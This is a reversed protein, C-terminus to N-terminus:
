NFNSSHDFATTKDTAGTNVLINDGGGGSSINKTSADIMNVGGKQTDKLANNEDHIAGLSNMKDKPSHMPSLDKVKSKLPGKYGEQGPQVMQQVSMQAGETDRPVLNGTVSKTQWMRDTMSNYGSTMQSTDGYGESSTVAQADYLIKQQEPTFTGTVGNQGSMEAFPTGADKKDFGMIKAGKTDGLLASLDIGGKISLQPQGDLSDWAEEDEKDQAKLEAKTPANPDTLSGHKVLSSIGRAAKGLPQGILTKAMDYAVDGVKDAVGKFKDVFGKVREKPSITIPRATVKNADMSASTAKPLPTVLEDQKGEGIMAIVGGHGGKVVGGKELGVVGKPKYKAFKKREDDNMQEWIQIAARHPNKHRRTGGKLLGEMSKDGYRRNSPKVSRFKELHHAASKELMKESSPGTTTTETFSENQGMATPLNKYTATVKPTQLENRKFTGKTQGPPLTTPVFAAKGDRIEELIEKNTDATSEQSLRAKKAEPTEKSVEKDKFLGSIMGGLDEFIPELGLAGATGGLVSGILAGPIMGVGGFGAGMMGGIKGGAAAGALIGATSGIAKGKEEIAENKTIKGAKEDSSAEAIRAAGSVLSIITGIVGVKALKGLTGSGGKVKSLKEAKPTKNKPTKNKPTDTPPKAFPNLGKFPNLWKLATIGGILLGLPNLIAALGIAAIGLKKWLPAALLANIWDSPVLLAVLGALLWMGWKKLISLWTREKGESNKWIKQLWSNRKDDKIDDAKEAKKAELKDESTQKDKGLFFGFLGGVTKQISNKEKTTKTAKTAKTTKTNAKEGDQLVVGPDGSLAELIIALAASIPLTGARIVNIMQAQDGGSKKTTM